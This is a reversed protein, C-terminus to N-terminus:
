YECQYVTVLGYYCLVGLDKLNIFGFQKLQARAKAQEPLPAVDPRGLQTRGGGAELVGGQQMWRGSAPAQRCQTELAPITVSFLASKALGAHEPMRKPPM